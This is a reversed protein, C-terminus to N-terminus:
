DDDVEILLEPGTTDLLVRCHAARSHRAVNTLAEQVIRYGTLGLAATPEAEGRRVLEVAIGTDAVGDVLTAIDALGPPPALEAETRLGGLVRRVEALATQSTTEIVRLA